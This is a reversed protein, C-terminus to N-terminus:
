GSTSPSSLSTAADPWGRAKCGRSMPRATPSPAATSGCWSRGSRRRTRARADVCQPDPLGRNGALHRAPRLLGRTRTALGPPPRGAACARHVGACRARGGLTGAQAAAHVPQRRLDARWLPHVQLCRCRRHDRRSCPRSDTEVVPTGQSTGLDNMADRGNGTASAHGPSWALHRYGRRAQHTRPPPNRERQDIAFRPRSEPLEDIHWRIRSASASTRNAAGAKACSNCSLTQELAVFQDDAGVTRRRREGIDVVLALEGAELDVQRPLDGFIQQAVWGLDIENSDLM